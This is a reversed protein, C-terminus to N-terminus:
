LSSLSMKQSRDQHSLAGLSEETRCVALNGSLCQEMTWEKSQRQHIPRCGIPGRTRSDRSTVLGVLELFTVVHPIQSFSSQHRESESPHPRDHLWPVQNAWHVPFFLYDTYLGLIVLHKHEMRPVQKSALECKHKLRCERIRCRVHGLGWEAKLKCYAVIEKHLENWGYEQNRDIIYQCTALSM